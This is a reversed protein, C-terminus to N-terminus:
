SFQILLFRNLEYIDKVIDVEFQKFLELANDLTSPEIEAILVLDKKSGIQQLLEHYYKLGDEGGDLATKPEFDKVSSDLVMYDKTPIYPLNALILTPTNLKIDSILNTEVFKIDKIGNLKANQEAIRLADKSIDTGVFSIDKNPLSKILSLLICGSGTGVDIVQKFYNPKDLITQLALDVLKETEIRPILTSRNVLFENGCFEVKGQIYEWPEQNQLRKFIDPLPYNTDKHFQLVENSIRSIDYYGSERLVKQIQFLIQLDNNV